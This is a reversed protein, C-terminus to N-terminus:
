VYGQKELKLMFESFDITSLVFRDMWDLFRQRNRSIEDWRVYFDNSRNYYGETYSPFAGKPVCCVVNVAWRPIVTGGQKENVQDVIEEVTVISQRAALLAEKQIGIIGKMWINGHKDARQAHIIALDPKIAPVVTLTEGTYPCSIFRIDSNVGPYDTGRYGKFIACPMNSAGAVYANAMAAHSHENIEIHHPYNNEVADRLRHLSGVGPNGGWSFMLKDACGMGIMQDYVIDPTMRILSLNHIKQRIIELGAAHPILHTFGEMAVSIGPKVYKQVAERLSLFETM